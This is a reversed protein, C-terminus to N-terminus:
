GTEGDRLPSLLETLFDSPTACLAEELTGIARARGDEVLVLTGGWARLDRPDHTVAVGLRGEALLAAAIRTRTARRASIDLAVLPEDLLLLAPDRVLARVLAIRQREGGSLRRTSRNALHALGEAEIAGRARANRTARDAGPAGYAVNGLVDLHPFLGGGQPLYGVDRDEPALPHAGGAWSRGRVRVHGEVAVPGGALARLLTSKGSGNPGVLLVPGQSISIRVDLEFRGARLRANIDLEARM